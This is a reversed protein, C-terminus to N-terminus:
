LTEAGRNLPCLLKQFMELSAVNAETIYQSFVTRHLGAKLQRVNISLLVEERRLLWELAQCRSLWRTKVFQPGKSNVLSKIEPYNGIMGQLITEYVQATSNKRILGAIVLQLTHCLCPSYKVQRYFGDPQEQLMSQNSWHALAQVQAPLNDRVISRVIVNKMRLAMIAEIIITGYDKLTLREREIAQYLFPEIGSYPALIMIDLFHHHLITGADIALSVGAKCFEFQHIVRARV